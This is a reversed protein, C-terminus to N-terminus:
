SRTARGAARPEFRGSITLTFATAAIVSALCVLHFRAAPGPPHRKGVVLGHVARRFLRVVPRM